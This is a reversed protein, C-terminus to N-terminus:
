NLMKRTSGIRIEVATRDMHRRPTRCDNLM